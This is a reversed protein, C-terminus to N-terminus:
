SKAKEKFEIIITCDTLLAVCSSIAVLQPALLASLIGVALPIELLIKDAEDKIILRQAQGKKKIEDLKKKIENFIEQGNIKYEQSKKEEQNQETM